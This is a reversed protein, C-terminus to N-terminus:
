LFYCLHLRTDRAATFREGALTVAFSGSCLYLLRHLMRGEPEQPLPLGSLRAFRVHYLHEMNLIAYQMPGKGKM